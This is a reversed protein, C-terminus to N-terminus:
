TEPSVHSSVPSTARRGINTGTAHGILAQGLQGDGVHLDVDVPCHGDVGRPLVMFIGKRDYGIVAKNCHELFQHIKLKSTQTNSHYLYSAVEM